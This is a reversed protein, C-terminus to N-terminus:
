FNNLIYFYRLFLFDNGQLPFCRTGRACQYKDILSCPTMDWLDTTKINGSMLVVFRMCQSLLILQSDFVVQLAQLFLATSVFSTSRQKTNQIATLFMLVNLEVTTRAVQNMQRFEPCIWITCPGKLIWAEPWRLFTECLNKQRFIWTQNLHHPLRRATLPKVSVETITTLLPGVRDLFRLPSSPPATAQCHGDRTCTWFCCSVLPIGLLTAAM